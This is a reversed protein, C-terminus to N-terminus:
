ALALAERATAAREEAATAARETEATAAQLMGIRTEIADRRAEWGALERQLVLLDSPRGEAPQRALEAALDTERARAEELRLAAEQLQEALVAATRGAAALR